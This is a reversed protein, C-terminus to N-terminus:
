GLDELLVEAVAAGVPDLQDVRGLVFGEARTSRDAV